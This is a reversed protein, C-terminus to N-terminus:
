CLGFLQPCVEDPRDSKGTCYEHLRKAGFSATEILFLEGLTFTVCDHM